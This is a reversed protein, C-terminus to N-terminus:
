PVCISGYEVPFISKPTSKGKLFVLVGLPSVLHLRTAFSHHTPMLLLRNVGPPTYVPAYIPTAHLEPPFAPQSTVLSNSTQDESHEPTGSDSVEGQSSSILQRDGQM